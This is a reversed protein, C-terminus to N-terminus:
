KARKYFPLAVVQVDIMRGRVDVQLKTGVDTYDTELLAMGDAHAAHSSRPYSTLLIHLPQRACGHISTQGFLAIEM